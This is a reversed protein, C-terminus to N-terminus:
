IAKYNSGNEQLASRKKTESTHWSTLGLRIFCFEAALRLIEKAWHVTDRHAAASCAGWHERVIADVGLPRGGAANSDVVDRAGACPSEAPAREPM